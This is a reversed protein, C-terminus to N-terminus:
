VMSITSDYRDDQDDQDRLEVVKAAHLIKASVQGQEDEIWGILCFLLGCLNFMNWM